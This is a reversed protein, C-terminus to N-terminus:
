YLIEVKECVAVGAVDVVCRYCCFKLGDQGEDYFRAAAVPDLSWVFKAQFCDGRPVMLFVFTEHGFRRMKRMEEFMEIEFFNITSPFVACGGQCNFVNVVYVYAKRGDDDALEFNVYKLEEGPKIERIYSYAGFDQDLIGQKFAEAFLPNKYKYNVFVFGSGEDVMECVFPVRRRKDASHGLLVRAGLRYLRGGRNCEPCFAAVKEGDDLLVDVIINKYNAIIEGGILVEDFKM